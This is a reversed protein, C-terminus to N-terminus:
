SARSNDVVLVEDCIKMTSPRHSVLIITRNNDEKLSKLISAENFSDLNSTPEDLLMLNGDHLFARALGLRQKQGGSLLDGLEGVNTQYGNELSTIFDHISAKKCACIIEDNTADLKAIKLNNEITDNFLHTQQTVYSQYNRLSSTNINKINDNGILVDGSTTDFFRMMLNLMTSKGSGSKGSIGYVKNGNFKFSENKIILEDEYKFSVQDFQIGNTCQVGNQVESIEPIEDLLDLVRQGCALTSSLGGGLNALAVFPGFSSYMLLISIVLMDGTILNDKYLYVGVMGILVSFGIICSNTLANTLSLYKKLNKDTAQMTATKNDINDLVNSSMDYQLVEQLGRIHDLFYNNLSGVDFRKKAGIDRTLKSIFVPVLLGVFLYGVGAIITFYLHMSNFIVINFAVMIMAICVPSITHAFFIELLEIDGTIVSILDGRSHGELKAPALRRLAAFVKSRILALLKFAIYHNFAHEIYHLIGRLIALIFMAVIITTIPNNNFVNLMLYGGLVTVFSACIFGLVGTIIAVLMHGMLPTVLLLLRSVINFVSRKM